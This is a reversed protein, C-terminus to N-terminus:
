HMCCVCEVGIAQFHSRTRTKQIAMTMSLLLFSLQLGVSFAGEDVFFDGWVPFTSTSQIISGVLAWSFISGELLFADVLSKSSVYIMDGLRLWFFWGHALVALMSGAWMLIFQSLCVVLLYLNAPFRFHFHVVDRFSSLILIFLYIVVHWNGVEKIGCSSLSRIAIISRTQM